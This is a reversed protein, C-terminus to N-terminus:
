LSGPRRLRSQRPANSPNIETNPNRLATWERPWLQRLSALVRCSSGGPYNWAGESTRSVSLSLDAVRCHSCWGMGGEEKGGKPGPVEVKRIRLSVWHGTM